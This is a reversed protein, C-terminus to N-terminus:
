LDIKKFEQICKKVSGSRRHVEHTAGRNIDYHLDIVGDVVLAHLRHGPDKKLRHKNRLVICAERKPIKVKQMPRIWGRGPHDLTFGAEKLLQEVPKQTPTYLM